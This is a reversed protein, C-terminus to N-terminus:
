KFRIHKSRGFAKKLSARLENTVDKAIEAKVEAVEAEIVEGNERVLEDRTFGRNCSVCRLTEGNADHEFDKQGCTPCLLAISRRYKEADM